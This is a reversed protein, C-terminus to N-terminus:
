SSKATTYSAHENLQNRVAEVLGKVSAKALAYNKNFLAFAEHRKLIKHTGSAGLIWLQTYAEGGIGNVGFQVVQHADTANHAFANRLNIVEHLANKDLKFQVEQSIAMAVKLKAGLTMVSTDLLVNYVFLSAHPRPGVYSLIVYNLLNEILSVRNVVRVLDPPEQYDTVASSDNDEM